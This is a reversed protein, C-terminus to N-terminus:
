SAQWCVIFALLGARWCGRLNPLDHRQFLSVMGIALILAFVGDRRRDCSSVPRPGPPQSSAGSLMMWPLARGRKLGGPPAAVGLFFSAFVVPVLDLLWARSRSQRSLPRTCDLMSSITSCHCAAAAMVWQWQGEVLTQALQQLDTFRSVALWVMAILLIWFLWRRNMPQRRKTCRKRWFSLPSM